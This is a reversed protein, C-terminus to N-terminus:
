CQHSHELKHSMCQKVTFFFQKDMRKSTLLRIVTKLTSITHNHGHVVDTVWSKNDNRLTRNNYM